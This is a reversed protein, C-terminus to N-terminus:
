RHPEEPTPKRPPPASSPVVARARSNGPVTPVDSQDGIPEEILPGTLCLCRSALARCARCRLPVPELGGRARLLKVMAYWLRRASM